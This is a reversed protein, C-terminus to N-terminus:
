LAEAVARRELFSQLIVCAALSDVVKKREQRRKGAAILVQEAEWTSLREDQEHIPVRVYRGLQEIFKQVKDAQIGRSDDMMLPMGVVIESIGESEVLDRVTNMDKRYGDSRLITKGPFAFVGSEDTLATGITKEGVDLALIRGM